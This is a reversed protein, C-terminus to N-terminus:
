RPSCRTRPWPHDAATGPSDGRVPSVMMHRALFAIRKHAQDLRYTGAVPITMGNWTRTAVDTM